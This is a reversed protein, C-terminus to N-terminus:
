CENFSFVVGFSIYSKCLLFFLSLAKFKQKVNKLRKGATGIKRTEDNSRQEQEKNNHNEVNCKRIKGRFGDEEYAVGDVVARAGANKGLCVSTTGAKSMSIGCGM